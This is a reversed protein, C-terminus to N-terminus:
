PTSEFSFRAFGPQREENVRTFVGGVALSTPALATPAPTVSWVGKGNGGSVTPNWATVAGNQPLFSALHIRELKLEPLNDFHGGIYVETDTAGIAQVDGGTRIVYVPANSASAPDYAYTRNSTTSFFLRGGDPALDLAIAVGGFAPAFSTAAGTTSLLEAAGPRVVGAVNKFGGAAYVRGGDPSVDLARVTGDPRPTFGPDVAGDSANLAALKNAAVGGIKAFGGGVYLRDGSSALARVTGRAVTRWKPLVDGSDADVAALRKRVYTDVSLFTGGLFIESGDASAALAYVTDDTSPNWAGVSGDALIVAANNRPVDGAMTFNGAIYTRDGVPLTAFVTGDVGATADADFSPSAAAPSAAVAVGGLSVSLVLVFHAVLRTVSSSLPM